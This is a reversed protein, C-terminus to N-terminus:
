GWVKLRKLFPAGEDSFRGLRVVGNWFVQVNKAMGAHKALEAFACRKQRRGQFVFLSM